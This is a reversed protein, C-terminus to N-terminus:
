TVSSSAYDHNGVELNEINTVPDSPDSNYPDVPSVEGSPSSPEQTDRAASVIWAILSGFLIFLFGCASMMPGSYLAQGSVYALGLIAAAMLGLLSDRNGGRLTTIVFGIGIVVILYIAGDLIRRTLNIATEPIGEGVLRKFHPVTITGDAGWAGTPWLFMLLGVMVLVFGLAIVPFLDRLTQRVIQANPSTSPNDLMPIKESASM